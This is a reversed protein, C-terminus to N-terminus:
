GKAELKESEVGRRREAKATSKESVYNRNWTPIEVVIEGAAIIQAQCALRSNLQVDAALDLRDGEEDEIAALLEAGQKVWVHCTTCACNGGCAHELAVRFNLAIDLISQPKGHDWYPLSDLEFEVTRNEPLFTLRVTRPNEELAPAAGALQSKDPNM